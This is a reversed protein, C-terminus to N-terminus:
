PFQARQQTFGRGILSGAQAGETQGKAGSVLNVIIAQVKKAGFASGAFGQTSVESFALQRERYQEHEFPSIGRVTSPQLAENTTALRAGQLADKFEQGFIVAEFFGDGHHAM